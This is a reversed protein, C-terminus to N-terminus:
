AINDARVHCQSSTTTISRRGTSHDYQMCNCRDERRNIMLVKGSQEVGAKLRAPLIAETNHELTYNEIMYVKSRKNYEESSFCPIETYHGGENIWCVRLGPELHIHKDEQFDIGLITNRANPAFM